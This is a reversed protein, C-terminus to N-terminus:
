HAVCELFFNGGNRGTQPGAPFATDGGRRRDGDADWTCTLPFEMETACTETDRILVFTASLPIEVVADCLEEGGDDESCFDVDQNGDYNDPDGDSGPDGDADEM